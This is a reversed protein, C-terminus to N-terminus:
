IRPLVGIIRLGDLGARRAMDLRPDEAAVFGRIRLLALSRARASVDSRIGLDGLIREATRADDHVTALMDDDGSSRAPGKAVIAVRPSAEGQLGMCPWGAMLTLDRYKNENLMPWWQGAGASEPWPTCALTGPTDLVRELAERLSGAVVVPAGFGFYGRAGEILMSTDGGALHVAKLGRAVLMDGCLARWLRALTERPTGAGPGRILRRLEEAERAPFFAFGSPDAAIEQELYKWRAAVAAAFADQASDVADFPDEASM